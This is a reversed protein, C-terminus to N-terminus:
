GAAIGFGTMYIGLKLSYDFDGVGNWAANHYNIEKIVFDRKNYYRKTTIRYSLLVEDFQYLVEVRVPKGVVGDRKADAKLAKNDIYDYRVWLLYYNGVHDYCDSANVVKTEDETVTQFTKVQANAATGIFLMGLLSIFIKKM